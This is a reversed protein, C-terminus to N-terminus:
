EPKDTYDDPIFEGVDFLRGEEGKYRWCRQTACNEDIEAEPQPSGNEMAANIQTQADEMMKSVLEDAAEIKKVSEEEIEIARMEANEIIELAKNEAALIIENVTDDDNKPASPKKPKAM